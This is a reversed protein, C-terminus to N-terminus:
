PCARDCRSTRGVDRRYQLRQRASTAGVPRPKRPSWQQMLSLHQSEAPPRLARITWCYSRLLDLRARHYYSLMGGLRRRRIVPGHLERIAAAPQVLRNGLGQHNRERHYHSVYQTIARRISAKGARCHPGCGPLCQALVRPLSQWIPRGPGSRRLTRHACQRRYPNGLIQDCASCPSPMRVPRARPKHQCLRSKWAIRSARRM